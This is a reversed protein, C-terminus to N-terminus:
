SEVSNPSPPRPSRKASLDASASRIHGTMDKARPDVRMEVPLDVRVDTEKARAVSDVFSRNVIIPGVRARHATGAAGYEIWAETLPVMMARRRFHQLPDGGPPPHLYGRITYPGARIAVPSPRTRTRRAANGRPGSARVAILDDRRVRLERLEIARNDDLAVALVSVLLLEEQQNLADSLREAGLRLFGFIRCDETYASFEIERAVSGTSTSEEMPESRPGEGRSDASKLWRRLGVLTRDQLPGSM